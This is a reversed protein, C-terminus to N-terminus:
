ILYPLLIKCTDKKAQKKLWVIKFTPSNYLCVNDKIEVKIKKGSLLASLLIKKTFNGQEGSNALDIKLLTSPCSSPGISRNVRVYTTEASNEGTWTGIELVSLNDEVTAKAQNVLSLSLAFMTAAIISKKM